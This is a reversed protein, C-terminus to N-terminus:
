PPFGLWFINFLHYVIVGLFVPFVGTWVSYYRSCVLLFDSSLILLFREGDCSFLNFSYFGLLAESCRFASTVIWWFLYQLWAKLLVM